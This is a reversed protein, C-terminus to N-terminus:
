RFAITHYTIKRIQSTESLMIGRLKMRTTIQIVLESRKIASDYGMTQIYWLTNM